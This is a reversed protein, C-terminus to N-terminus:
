PPKSVRAKGVHELYGKAVRQPDLKLERALSTLFGRLYVQAPLDAYREREINDLHWHGIKTRAALDKLSFGLAERVRRLADGTIPADVTLEAEARRIPKENEDKPKETDERPVDVPSDAALRPPEVEPAMPTSELAPEAPVVAEPPPPSAADETSPPPFGLGRDYDRRRAADALVAYADEIRVLMLRVETPGLLSYTVLSDPGIRAKQKRYAVDVAELSCGPSLELVEYHTQESLEKV